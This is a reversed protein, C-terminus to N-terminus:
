AGDPQESGAPGVDRAHISVTLPKCLQDILQCGVDWPPQEWDWCVHTFRLMNLTNDALGDLAEAADVAKAVNSAELAFEQRDADGGDLDDVLKHIIQKAV